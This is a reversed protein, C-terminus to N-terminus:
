EHASQLQAFVEAPTRWELCKRPRDNLEDQVRKLDDPSHAALSTGKPFYDRLLGNSNENTPRQWPSRPDCFFVPVGIADTIQEHGAMETGQDWTLTRRLPPPLGELASTVGRCTAETTHRGNVHVLLVYRSVREM